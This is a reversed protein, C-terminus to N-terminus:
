GDNVGESVPHTQYERGSVPDPLVGEINYICGDHVFRMAATVRKDRRTVIRASVKSQNAAAAIFERASLPEISAWLQAVEVWGLDIVAGDEPDRGTQRQQLSVLHRLKGAAIM